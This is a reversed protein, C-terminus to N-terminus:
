TYSMNLNLNNLSWCASCLQVRIDWRGMRIRGSISKASCTHHETQESSHNKRWYLTYIDPVPNGREIETRLDEGALANRLSDILHM